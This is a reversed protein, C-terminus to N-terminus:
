TSFQHRNRKSPLQSENKLPPMSNCLPVPLNFISCARSCELHCVLSSPARMLPLPEEVKFRLLLVCASLFYLLVHQTFLCMRWSMLVSQTDNWKLIACGQADRSLPLRTSINLRMYVSSPNTLHRKEPSARASHLLVPPATPNGALVM